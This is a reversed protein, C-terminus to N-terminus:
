TLQILDSFLQEYAQHNVQALWALHGSLEDPTWANADLVADRGSIALRHALARLKRRQPRPLNVRENVVLGTVVQRGGRGLVRTKRPNLRYPYICGHIRRYFDPPVQPGSFSLDDAYRSYILDHEQAWQALKQDFNRFVINSIQPSTPAGQPLRDKLLCLDIMLAQSAPSCHSAILSALLPALHQNILGRHTSTFFDALDLTIVWRQGVHNQAHTIISRHPVFGHAADHVPFRYLLATLLERQVAKLEPRPAEIWRVKGRKKPITYRRYHRSIERTMELLQDEREDLYRALRRASESEIELQGSIYSM